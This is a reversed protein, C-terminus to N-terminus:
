IGSHWAPVQFVSFFDSSASFRDTGFRPADSTNRTGVRCPATGGGVPLAFNNVDVVGKGERTVELGPLARLQGLLCPSAPPSLFPPSVLIGSVSM